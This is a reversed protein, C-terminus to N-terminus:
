GARRRKPPPAPRAVALSAFQANVIRSYAELAGEVRSIRQGLENMVAILRENRDALEEKVQLLLQDQSREVQLLREEVKSFREDMRAFRQDMSSQLSDLRKILEPMAAHLTTEIAAVGVKRALAKGM